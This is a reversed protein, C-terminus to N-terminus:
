KQEETYLPGSEIIKVSFEKFKPPISKEIGPTKVSVFVVICDKDNTKGQGIGEVWDINMWQDRVESIAEEISLGM